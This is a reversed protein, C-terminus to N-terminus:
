NKQNDNNNSKNKLDTLLTLVKKYAEFRGENRWMKIALNSGKELTDMLSMLRNVNDESEQLGSIIKEPNPLSNSEVQNIILDGELARLESELFKVLTSELNEM